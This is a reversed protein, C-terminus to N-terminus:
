FIMNGLVRQRGVSFALGTLPRSLSGLPGKGLFPIHGHVQPLGYYLSFTCAGSVSLRVFRDTHGQPHSLRESGQEVSRLFHCGEPLWQSSDIHLPTPFLGRPHAYPLHVSIKIIEKPSLSSNVHPPHSAKQKEVNPSRPQVALLQNRHQQLHIFGSLPSLALSCPSLLEM